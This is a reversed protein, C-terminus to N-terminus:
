ESRTGLGLFAFDVVQTVIEDISYESYRGSLWADVIRMGMGIISQSVLDSNCPRAFGNKIAHELYFRALDSLRDSAGSMVDAVENDITPAERLFVRCLDRNRAIIRAVHVIARLSADRYEEVNSPLNATMESFEGFLEILFGEMLTEFIVRKDKFNRYFTGQGVGAEAVIESILSKHYGNRAFIKTAASLLQTRTREKREQDKKKRYASPL